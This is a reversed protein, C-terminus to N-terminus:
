IMHNMDIFHSILTIELMEGFLIASNIFAWNMSQAQGLALNQLKYGMIEIASTSSGESNSSHNIV